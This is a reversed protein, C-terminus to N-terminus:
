RRWGHRAPVSTGHAIAHCATCFEIFDILTAVKEAASVAGFPHYLQLELSLGRALSMWLSVWGRIVPRKHM